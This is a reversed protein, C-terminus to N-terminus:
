AAIAAPYASWNPQTLPESEPAPYRLGRISRLYFRSPCDVFDQLSSASFQFDDPLLVKHPTSPATNLSM